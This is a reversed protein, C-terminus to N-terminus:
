FAYYPSLPQHQHRREAPYRIGVRGSAPCASGHELKEKHFGHYSDCCYMRWKAVQTVPVQQLPHQRHVLHNSQKSSTNTEYVLHSTVINGVKQSCRYLGWGSMVYPSHCTPEGCPSRPSCGGVYEANETGACSSSSLSFIIWPANSAVVRCEEHGSIVQCCRGADAIVFM